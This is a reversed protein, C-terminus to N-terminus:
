TAGTTGDPCRRPDGQTGMWVLNAPKGTTRLLCGKRDLQLAARGFSTQKLGEGAGPINLSKSAGNVSRSTFEPNSISYFHAALYARLTSYLPEVLLLPDCVGADTLLANASAVFIDGTFSSLGLLTAVTENFKGVDETGTVQLDAM